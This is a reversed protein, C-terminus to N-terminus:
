DCFFYRITFLTQACQMHCPCLFLNVPKILKWFAIATMRPMFSPQTHLEITSIFRSLSRINHFNMYQDFYKYRILDWVHSVYKYWMPKESCLMIIVKALFSAIMVYENFLVCLHTNRVWLKLEKWIRWASMPWKFRPDALTYGFNKITSFDQKTKKTVYDEHRLYTLNQLIKLCVSPWTQTECTVPM